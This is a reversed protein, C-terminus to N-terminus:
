AGGAFLDACAVAAALVVLAGLRVGPSRWARRATGPAAESVSM